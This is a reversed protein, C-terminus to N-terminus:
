IQPEGQLEVPSRSNPQPGRIRDLKDAQLVQSVGQLRVVQLLQSLLKKLLGVQRCGFRSKKPLRNDWRAVQVDHKDVGHPDQAGLM